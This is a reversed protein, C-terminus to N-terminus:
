APPALVTPPVTGAHLERLEAITVATLDQYRAVATSFDDAAAHASPVVVTPVGAAAAAALGVGSDEVALCQWPELGLRDVVWRYIDPAPKKAPVVDGAGIVEFWSTAGEGLTSDLLATVNAPTTTTAIALRLDGGRAERVLAEVGPLLRVRGDALLRLYHGTKSEHLGDILDPADPRALFWRDSESLFHRIREKGGTVQLLQDYLAEDWRWPLGAEAFAENFAV